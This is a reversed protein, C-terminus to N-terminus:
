IFRSWWGKRKPKDSDEPDTDGPDIESAAGAPTGLAPEDSPAAM